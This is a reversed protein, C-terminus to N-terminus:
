PGKSLDSCMWLTIPHGQEPEKAKWLAPKSTNFNIIRPFNM